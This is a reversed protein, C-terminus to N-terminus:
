LDADDPNSLADRLERARAEPLGDLAVSALRTGATFVKLSSLGLRRDLPGRNIDTHQVRTRAVFTESHWILGRRIHLGRSDFAYRTRGYRASGVIWGLTALGLVVLLWIGVKIASTLGAGDWATLLIALPVAPALTFGAMSTLQLVRRANPHLSQYETASTSQLAEAEPPPTHSDTVTSM